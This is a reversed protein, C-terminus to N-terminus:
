SQIDPLTNDLGGIKALNCFFVRRYKYISLDEALVTHTMCNFVCLRPKPQRIDLFETLCDVYLSTSKNHLKVNRCSYLKELYGKAQITSWARAVRYMSAM